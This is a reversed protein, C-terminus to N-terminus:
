LAKCPRILSCLSCSGIDRMPLISDDAIVCQCGTGDELVFRRFSNGLSNRVMWNSQDQQRAKSNVIAFFTLSEAFGQKSIGQRPDSLCGINHTDAGHQNVGNIISCPLKVKM